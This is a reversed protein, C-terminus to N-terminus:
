SREGESTFNGKDKQLLELWDDIFVQPVATEALFRRVREVDEYFDVADEELDDCSHLGALFEPKAVDQSFRSLIYAPLQM